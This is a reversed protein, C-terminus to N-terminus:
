ENKENMINFKIKKITQLSKAVHLLMRTHQILIIKIIM